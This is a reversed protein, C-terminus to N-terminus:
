DDKKASMRVLVRSRHCIRYNLNHGAMDMITEIEPEVTAVTLTDAKNGILGVLSFNDVTTQAGVNLGTLVTSIFTGPVLKTTFTGDSQVNYIFSFTVKSSSASPPQGGNGIAVVTLNATGTGDGNFTRIGEISFALLSFGGEPLTPVPIVQLTTPNFGGRSVMCMASGTVAYEGKLRAASDRDGKFQPSDAQAVATSLLFGAIAPLYFTRRM